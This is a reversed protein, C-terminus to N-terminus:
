IHTRDDYQLHLDTLEDGIDKGIDNDSGYGSGLLTDFYHPRRKPASRRTNRRKGQLKHGSDNLKLAAYNKDAEAEIFAIKRLHPIYDLWCFDPFPFNVSFIGLM